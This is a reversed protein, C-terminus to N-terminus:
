YEWLASIHNDIFNDLLKSHQKSCVDICNWTHKTTALTRTVEYSSFALTCIGIALCNLKDLLFCM